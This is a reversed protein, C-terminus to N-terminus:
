SDRTFELALGPVAGTLLGERWVLEGNVWTANVRAPLSRGAFPTWGCRSLLTQTDVETRASADVLVLDAYYGERAFGREALQFRLAPNHSIKEVLKPADLYGGAVLSWAAQVTFQVLPLGAAAREYESGKESVLHPAHDTAIIDLRDEALARYLAARDTHTKISPNCKIRNGLEAYDADIFYLHPICAEGTIQKAAIPGAEFLEMEEATTLHLVHLRTGHNRALDLALRTSKLCAERSRIEAHAEPPIRSGYRNRADALNAEITPTDECHTAVIMRAERFIGELTKPDDVLMNGTSAGMFVKIGCAQAADLARIEDLNDNTAGFYFSYNAASRGAARSFKEALRTRDVTPPITNPMDMYSTIGGAVAARSESAIDGKATLGPERFHVQDDIMGPIVYRGGADLTTEGPRARLGPGITEIRGRRIRIDTETIRGENVLRADTLLWGRM